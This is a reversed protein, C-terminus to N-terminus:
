DSDELIVTAAAYLRDHSISLHMRRVGLKEALALARNHLLIRPRAHNRSVEIDIFRMGDAFGTGLAKSAAEKAAFRASLHPSPNRKSRCYDVESETFVRRLFRDGYRELLSAIREVDVIDIGVGVIM